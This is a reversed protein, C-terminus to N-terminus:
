RIRRVRVESYVKDFKLWYTGIFNRRITLAGRDVEDYSPDEDVCEWVQGNDLMFRTGRKWGELKGVLHAQIERPEAPKAQPLTTAGFNLPNQAPATQAGQAPAAQPPVSALRDYCALREGDDAIARCSQLEDSGAFAPAVLLAALVARKM